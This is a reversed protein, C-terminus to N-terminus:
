DGFHDCILGSETCTYLSYAITTVKTFRQLLVDSEISLRFCPNKRELDRLIPRRRGEPFFLVLWWHVLLDFTVPTVRHELTTTRIKKPPCFEPLFTYM